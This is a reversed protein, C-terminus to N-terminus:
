IGKAARIFARIKEPDKRGPAAEVGSSVDVAYPHVIDLADRVNEPTLGGALIISRSGSLERALSWDFSKGTGGHADPSWADLLYGAVQYRSLTALTAADKVRFAKIVRRKIEPCYDPTEDGQLQVLDLGCFDAVWNVRESDADVFLGVTQVFPPLQAIIAAAKQPSVNRPSKEYFVFGLSDAGAAVAVLADELRTIGCIKVRVM